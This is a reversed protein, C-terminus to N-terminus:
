QVAGGVQAGQEIGKKTKSHLTKSAIICTRRDLFATERNGSSVAKFFVNSNEYGLFNEMIHVLFNYAGWGSRHKTPLM